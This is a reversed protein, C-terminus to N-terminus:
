DALVETERRKGEIFFNIRSQPDRQIIIFLPAIFLSTISGFLHALWAIDEADPIIRKYVLIPEVIQVILLVAVIVTKILDKLLNKEEAERVILQHIQLFTLLGMLGFLGGSAGCTLQNQFMYSQVFVGVAGSLFYDILIVWFPQNLEIELYIVIVIQVFQSIISLRNELHMFMYTVFRWVQGIKEYEFCFTKISAKSYYYVFFQFFYSENDIDLLLFVLFVLILSVQIASIVFFILGSLLKM